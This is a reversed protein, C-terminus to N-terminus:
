NTTQGFSHIGSMGTTWRSNVTAIIKFSKKFSEKGIGDSKASPKLPGVRFVNYRVGTLLSTGVNYIAGDNPDVLPHLSCTQFGFLEKSDFREGLTMTEPDYEHFYCSEGGVFLKSHTPDYNLYSTTPNDSM